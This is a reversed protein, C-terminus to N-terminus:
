PGSALATKPAVVPVITCSLKSPDARFYTKSIELNEFPKGGKTFKIRETITNEGGPVLGGHEDREVGSIADAENSAKTFEPLCQSVTVLMGAVDPEYPTPLIPQVGQISVSSIELSVNEGRASFNLREFPGGCNNCFEIDIAKGAEVRFEDKGGLTPGSAGNWYGRHLVQPNSIMVSSTGHNVFRLNTMPVAPSANVLDVPGGHPSTVLGVPAAALDAAIASGHTTFSAFAALVLAVRAYLNM